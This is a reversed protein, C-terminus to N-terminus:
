SKTWTFGKKLYVAKVREFLGQNLSIENYHKSRIPSLEKELALVENNSDTGSIHSFVPSIKDLLAGANDYAVITNEFTPEETNNIISDIEAKHQTMAEVFAPMFHEIKIKEFPPIGFPTNWDELLPNGSETKQGCSTFIAGAAIM